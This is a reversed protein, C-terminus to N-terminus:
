KKQPGSFGNMIEDYSGPMPDQGVVLGIFLTVTSLVIVVVGFIRTGLGYGTAGLVMGLIDTGVSVFFAGVVALGLGTACLIRGALLKGGSGGGPHDATRGGVARDLVVALLLGGVTVVFFLVILFAGGIGGQVFAASM